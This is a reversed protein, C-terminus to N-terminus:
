IQLESELAYLSFQVLELVNGFPYNRLPLVHSQHFHPTPTTPHHANHQHPPHVIPLHAHTLHHLHQQHVVPSHHIQFLQQNFLEPTLAVIRYPIIILHPVILRLHFSHVHLTQRNLVSDASLTTRFFNFVANLAILLQPFAFKQFVM